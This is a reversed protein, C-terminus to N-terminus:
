SAGTPQSPLTGVKHNGQTGDSAVSVRTTTAPPDASQDISASRILLHGEIAVSPEATPALAAVTPDGHPLFALCLALALLSNALKRVACRGIELCSAADMTFPPDCVDNVSSSFALIVSPLHNHQSGLLGGGVPLSQSAPTSQYAATTATESEQTVTMAYNHTWGYGFPTLLRGSIHWKNEALIYWSKEAM